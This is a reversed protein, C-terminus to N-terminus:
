NNKIIVSKYTISYASFYGLAGKNFNSIPNAPAPSLFEGGESSAQRVTRYYDFTAKDVSCLAVTVTDGANLNQSSDSRVTQTIIKGDRYNDSFVSFTNAPKGNIILAPHYYNQIGPPDHLVIEIRKSERGFLGTNKVIKITDIKVPIPMSSFAIYESNNVIISLKYKLGATGHLNDTKYLGPSQEKLTDNNGLTDSIVVIANSVAPFVNLEDYNVTKSINVYYPGNQDSINGTIVLVPSASNLDIHIEKQCSSFLLLLFAPILIDLLLDAIVSFNKPHKSLGKYTM